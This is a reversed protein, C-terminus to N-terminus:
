TRSMVHPAQQSLLCWLVDVGINFCCSAVSVSLLPEVMCSVVCMCASLCGHGGQTDAAAMLTHLMCQRHIYCCCAQQYTAPAHSDWLCAQQLCNSGQQVCQSSCVCMVSVAATMPQQLCVCSFCPWGGARTYLQERPLWVGGTSVASLPCAQVWAHRCTPVTDCRCDQQHMGEPWLWSGECAASNCCLQFLALELVHRCRSLAPCQV